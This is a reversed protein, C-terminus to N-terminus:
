APWKGYIIRFFVLGLFSGAVNALIDFWEFSRGRALGLQLYETGFGFLVAFFTVRLANRHKLHNFQNQKKLGVIWLLVLMLFLFLHVQKDLHFLEFWSHTPFHKGPLTCLFLIFATWVIAPATFRIFM